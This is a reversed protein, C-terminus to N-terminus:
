RRASEGDRVRKFDEIWEKEVKGKPLVVFSLLGDRLPVGDRGKDTIKVAKALVERLTIEKGVKLLRRQVTEVYVVLNNTYYEHKEDWPSWEPSTSTPTAPFIPALQDDFSTEEHFHTVLDSQGYQPYLFFVPFILPTAATPAVWAEAAEKPFLPADVLAAPDFHLPEPIDPPESTNAVILGRTAIALKRAADTITTRRAREERESVRREGAEIQAALADWVKQNAGESWLGRGRAVADRAEAWRELSVLAQAARYLAKSPPDKNKAAALAIIASTDRLVAGMNRLAINCAARNNLLSVRLAEDAPGSDLGSTYADIADRYSKQAYLENGHNKFNIAVEDGEGEFVLSKLAELVYDGGTDKPTERMFLPTTDLVKQFEDYTVPERKEDGRARAM